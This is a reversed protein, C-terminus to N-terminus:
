VNKVALMIGKGRITRIEVEKVGSFYKRLRSLFVDMSRGMFYDNEGWLETLVKEREIVQNRNLYLYKLLEAERHTLKHQVHDM